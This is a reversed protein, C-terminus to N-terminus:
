PVVTGLIIIIFVERKVGGGFCGSKSLLCAVFM